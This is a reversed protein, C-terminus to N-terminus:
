LRYDDPNFAALDFTNTSVRSVDIRTFDYDEEYMPAKAIFRLIQIQIEAIVDADPWGECDMLDIVPLKVGLSHLRQITQTVYTQVKRWCAVRLEESRTWRSEPKRSRLESISERAAIGIGIVSQLLATRQERQRELTM